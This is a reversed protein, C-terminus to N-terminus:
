AIKRRRKIRKLYTTFVKHVINAEVEEKILSYTMLALTGVSAIAFIIPFMFDEKQKGLHIYVM